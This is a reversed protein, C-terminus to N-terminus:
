VVQAIHYVSKCANKDGFVLSEVSVQMKAIYNALLPVTFGRNVGPKPPFSVDATFRPEHYM